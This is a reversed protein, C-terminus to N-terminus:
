ATGIPVVEDVEACEGVRPDDVVVPHVVRGFQVVPQQQAQGCAALIIEKARAHQTPTM